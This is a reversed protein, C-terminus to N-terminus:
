FQATDGLHDLATDVDGLFVQHHDNRRTFISRMTWTRESRQEALRESEIWRGLLLTGLDQARGERRMGHPGVDIHRRESQLRSREERRIQLVHDSARTERADLTHRRRLWCRGDAVYHCCTRQDKRRVQIPSECLHTHAVALADSCGLDRIHCPVIDTAERAHLVLDEVCHLQRELM